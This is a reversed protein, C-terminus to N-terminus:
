LSAEHGDGMRALFRGIAKVTMLKAEPVGDFVAQPMVPCEAEQTDQVVVVGRMESVRKAGRKGDQNAGSLIVCCLGSQYAEAASYLLVNFSPRSYEVPPDTSLVMMHDDVLLHYGPPALYVTGPAIPDKDEIERVPLACWCSMGTALHTSVSPERHLAVILPLVYDAQLANLIKNLPTYAGMSGVIINLRNTTPPYSKAM